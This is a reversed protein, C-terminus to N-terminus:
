KNGKLKPVAQLECFSDRPLKQECEKILKKPTQYSESEEVIYMVSIFGLGFGIIMNFM